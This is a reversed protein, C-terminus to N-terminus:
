QNALGPDTSTLNTLGESTISGSHLHLVERRQGELTRRVTNTRRTADFSRLYGKERLRKRLTAPSTSLSEGQEGALRQAEAFSAEPELLLDEAEVWGIRRGQAHWSSRTGDGVPVDRWGWANPSEEPCDGSPSAVHARGSALAASLLRLFHRTPEFTEQHSAQEHAAERLSEYGQQWLKESADPSIAGIEVAFEMLYRLGVALDAVLGPTRAHQHSGLIADRLQTVETRLTQRISEYHPAVWYIFGALAEAYRGERADRQCETLKQRDVSGPAVDIIL